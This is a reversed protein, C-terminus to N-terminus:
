LVGGGGSVPFARYMLKSLQHQLGVVPLEGSALEAARRTQTDAGVATVLAVATGAVMTTGAFLMCRREALPAGPTAEVQKDVSLSEGTLTSEDVEVDVEDMIRADAPIVEHTRVEIVDGPRLHAADVDTYTREGDPGITVRRAPPIQLALLHGLRKEARLRQAAALISNSILVTGVLVADVPSGLI